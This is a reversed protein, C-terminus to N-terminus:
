ITVSVTSDLTPHSRFTLTVIGIKIQDGDRLEVAEKIRTGNVSTGNKSGRDYLMAREPMVQLKAHIRSVGLSNLVVTCQPDRGISNEGPRLPYTKADDLLRAATTGPVEAAFAYGFRHVTRIASPYLAKRVESILVKLNAEEVVVDPWIQAILDQKSVASPRRM